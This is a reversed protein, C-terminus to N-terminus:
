EAIIVEWNLDKGAEKFNKALVLLNSVTKEAAQRGPGNKPESLMKDFPVTINNISINTENIIELINEHLKVNNKAVFESISPKFSEGNLGKGLYVNIIGNFNARVDNHTQDSFCSHEDEPDGSDLATAIRESSLEFGALTAIGTLIAGGPDNKNLFAKRGEGNDLWEMSLWNIHELLLASTAVLYARRRINIENTPLYDSAERMGTTELSFDQGWLLFEIAHWGSSVDADDESMNAAIITRNNIELTLNNIIGANPSGKVYDIYAENLPWANILGEPGEEGYKNVGDIPGGYFRFAETIGYISRAAIWKNKANALSNNDPAQVFKIIANHMEQTSLSVENYYHSVLNAYSNALSNISDNAAYASKELFSFSLLVYFFLTFKIKYM